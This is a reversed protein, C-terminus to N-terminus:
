PAGGLLADYASLPSTAIDMTRLAAPVVLAESAVPEPAGLLALLPEDHRLAQVLRARVVEIGEEHARELVDRYRRAAELEGHLAALRRWLAGFPEGLQEMLPGAVQRLAQTKRSLQQLYHPYWISRENGRKRPHVVREGERVFAVERPGVHAEVRSRAWTEPVSYWASEVRATSSASVAVLRMRSAVFPHEPLSRMGAVSEALLSRRGAQERDLRARMAGEIAVLDTGQPIPTLHQLRANKGGSEVGGKDHGQRPRAFCPEFLYHSVLAVFRENLERETGVLVRQVASSLNDYIVRQPVAGLEAFARVHGDLFSVQDAREYLYALSWRAHMERMVFLQGKRRKPGPGYEFTFFDVEAVEGPAYVLPVYVEARRRRWERMVRQVSRVSVEHGEAELVEVLRRGTWRQKRNTLQPDSLLEVIKAEVAARVPRARPGEERRVPEAQSLYKRVTNRSIGMEEAVQRMSLGEVLVKHRIVHVQAV